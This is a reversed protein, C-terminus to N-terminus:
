AANASSDLVEFPELRILGQKAAVVLAEGLDDSRYLGLEVDEALELDLRLREEFASLVNGNGDALARTALGASDLDLDSNTM